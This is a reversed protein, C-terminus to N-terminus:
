FWYRKRRQLHERPITGVHGFIQILM